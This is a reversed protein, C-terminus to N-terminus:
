WVTIFSWVWALTEYMPGKNVIENLGVILFVVTAVLMMWACAFIGIVFIKQGLTKKKGQTLKSTDM